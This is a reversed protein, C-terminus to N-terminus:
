PLPTVGSRADPPPLRIEARLGHPHPETLTLRAADGYMAQLRARLNALGTGGAPPSSAAGDVTPASGAGDMGVGSDQVTLQLGGDPRATALVQVEGGEESPDIGHRVANEVLTLLAMPPFRLGALAPDAQVQWRLRDPMRMEMLSLYARVRALEDGLTPQADRLGPMAARLYETLTQLVPGARPSGSEVLAQVNALTNFLFHPEVQSQLLALRADAAQRKLTERELAFQLALNRAQADRERFLAGLALVLGLVLGTGAIWSFGAVVGPNDFLALVNGGAYLLYICATALPAALVIALLQLLWRPMWGPLRHVPLRGAAHFALLLVMALFLTRGLVVPFPPMFLPNLLAAVVVALAVAMAVSRGTLGGLLGASGAAPTPMPPATDPPLM